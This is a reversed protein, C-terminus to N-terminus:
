PTPTEAPTEVPAQTPEPIATPTDTPPPTPTDTVTPPLTETPTPTPTDTATATATPPPAATPPPSPSSTPTLSPTLSPPVFQTPTNLLAPRTPSPTFTQLVATAFAPLTAPTAGPQGPQAILLAAIGIVYCPITLLIIGILVSYVTRRSSLRNSLRQM